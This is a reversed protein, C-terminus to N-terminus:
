GNTAHQAATSRDSPHDRSSTTDHEILASQDGVDDEADRRCIGIIDDSNTDDNTVPHQRVRSQCGRSWCYVSMCIVATAIDFLGIIIYAVQVPHLRTGDVVDGSSSNRFFSTTVIVTILSSLSRVYQARDANM